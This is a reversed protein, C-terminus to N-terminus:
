IPGVLCLVIRVASAGLAVPCSRGEEKRGGGNDSNGVVLRCFRVYTKMEIGKAGCEPKEIVKLM